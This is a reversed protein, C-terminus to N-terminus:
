GAVPYGYHDVEAYTQAATELLRWNGRHVRVVAERFEDVEEVRGLSRLCTIALTLDEGVKEPDDKPDLALKRLGEYADKYNGANAARTLEERRQQQPSKQAAFTWTVAAALALAGVLVARSKALMTASGSSSM